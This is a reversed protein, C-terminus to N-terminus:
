TKQLIGLWKKKLINANRLFAQPYCNGDKNLASDLSVITLCTLNSDVKLIEKNHFDTAEDSYFKIKTWSFNNYVPESDFEQKIETSVKDWFIHYKELLVNDEISLSM